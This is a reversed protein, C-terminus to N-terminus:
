YRGWNRPELKVRANRIVRFAKSLEDRGPVPACGLSFRDSAELVADLQKRKLAKYRGQTIGRLYHDPVDGAEIIARDTESM